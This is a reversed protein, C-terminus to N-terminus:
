RLECRRLEAKKKKADALYKELEAWFAKGHNKVRTHVLEHLIVYDILEDELKLLQMNLSINNKASCSGWRSKQNRIFVRNYTFGHEAALKDLKSILTIRAADRDIEIQPRQEREREIKKVRNLHKRIWDTKELAFEEAKKFSVGYPVAVRVGRHPRASIILRKARKSREIMVPGVGDIEIHKM